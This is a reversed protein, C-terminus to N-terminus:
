LLCEAFARAYYTILWDAGARKIATLIERATQLEDCFGAQAAAKILMYEGSTHYAALPMQPFRAKVRQIIDLYAHAPKVMVIDAGEEIDAATELLAQSANRYDMQYSRRDGFAPASQAAERFPSYLSSAYKVSYGMIKTRACAAKNLAARIAAVQGDQMASPAVIDAGARAHTVAMAALLPLTEDNLVNQGDTLGCHGHDTYGCLCIDTIVTLAPYARKVAAAARAVLNNPAYAQSGRADKREKELVGFLLIKDLGTETLRALEKLLEDISFHWVGALSKLAHKIGAGEVVFYPQVFDKVTLRVEAYKDRVTQDLRYPRFRKFKPM